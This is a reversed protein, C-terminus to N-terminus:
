QVSTATSAALREEIERDKSATDVPKAMGFIKPDRPPDQDSSLPASRPLLNLKAREIASESGTISPRIPQRPEFSSREFSPRAQGFSSMGPGRGVVNGRRWDSGGGLGESTDADDRLGAPRYGGKRREFPQDSRRGGFANRDRGFGDGRDSNSPEAIRVNVQRGALQCDRRMLAKALDDQTEFDVFCFGRSGGEGSVLNIKTIQLPAFFEAIDDETASYAMNYVFARFPKETPLKALEDELLSGQSFTPLNARIKQVEEAKEKSLKLEAMSDAPDVEAITNSSYVVDVDVSKNFRNKKTKKGM